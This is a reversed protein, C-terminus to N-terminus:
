SRDGASHLVELAAQARRAPTGGTLRVFSAEGLFRASAMLLSGTSMGGLAASGPRRNHLDALIEVLGERSPVRHLELRPGFCGAKTTVREMTFVRARHRAVWEQLHSSLNRGQPLTLRWRERGPATRRARFRAGRLARRLSAGLGDATAVDYQLPASSRALPPGLLLVAAPRCSEALRLGPLAAPDVLWKRALRLRAERRVGRLLIRASPSGAVIGVSRPFPHLRGERLEIPAYDDSLFGCGRRALELVLSTKGFGPPGCVLLGRGGHSVAGAHFLLHGQITDILSELVLALTHGPTCDRPLPLRRAGIMLAPSSAALKLHIRQQAREMPEPELFHRYQFRLIETIAPHDSLIQLPRSLLRLRLSSSSTGPACRSSRMLSMAGSM